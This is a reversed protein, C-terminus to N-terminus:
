RPGRVEWAESTDPEQVAEVLRSLLLLRSLGLAMLLERSLEPTDVEWHSLEQELNFPHLLRCLRHEGAPFRVLVDGAVPPIAEERRFLLLHLFPRRALDAWAQSTGPGPLRADELKSPHLRRLWKRAVEPSHV